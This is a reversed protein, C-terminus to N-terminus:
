DSMKNVHKVSECKKKAKRVGGSVFEFKGTVMLDDIM